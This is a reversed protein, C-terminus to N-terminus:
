KTIVYNVLYGLCVLGTLYMIAFYFLWLCNFGKLNERYKLRNLSISIVFFIISTYYVSIPIKKLFNFIPIPDEYRLLKLIEEDVYVDRAMKKVLFISLFVFMFFLVLTNRFILQKNYGYDWWTKDIWNQIKFWIKWNEKNHYLFERYRKDIVEYSKEYGENKARNLLKHFYAVNVDNTDYHNTEVSTENRNTINFDLHKEKFVANIKECDTKTFNFESEGYKRNLFIERMDFDNAIKVNSYYLKYPLQSGIFSVSDFNITELIVKKGFESGSFDAFKEFIVNKFVVEGFFQTKKFNTNGIFRINEFTVDHKFCANHFNANRVINVESSDGQFKCQSIFLTNEFNFSTDLIGKSVFKIYETQNPEM